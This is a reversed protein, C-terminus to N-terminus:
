DQLLTFTGPPGSKEGYAEDDGRRKLFLSSAMVYGYGHGDM